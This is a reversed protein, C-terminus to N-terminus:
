ALWLTVEGGLDPLFVATPVDSKLVIPSRAEKSGCRPRSVVSRCRSRSGSRLPRCVTRSGARRVELVSRGVAAGRYTETLSIELATDSFEFAESWCRARGVPRSNHRERTPKLGSLTLTSGPGLM